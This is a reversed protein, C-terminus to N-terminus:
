PKGSESVAARGGLVELTGRSIAEANASAFSSAYRAHTFSLTLAAVTGSPRRKVEILRVPQHYSTQNGRPKQLTYSAFVLAFVLAATVYFAFVGLVDRLPTILAVLGLSLSLLLAIPVKKMLGTRERTASRACRRCYPLELQLEFATRLKVIRKICLPTAVSRIEEVEGCNCCFFQPVRLTLDDGIPALISM